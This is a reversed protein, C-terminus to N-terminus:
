LVCGCDPSDDPASYWVQQGDTRMNEAAVAQQFLSFLLTETLEETESWTDHNTAPLDEVLSCNIVCLASRQSSESRRCREKLLVAWFQLKLCANIRCKQLCICWIYPQIFNSCCLCVMILLWSSEVKWHLCSWLGLGCSVGGNSYFVKVKLIWRLCLRM